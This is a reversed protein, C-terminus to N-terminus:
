FQQFGTRHFLWLPFFGQRQLPTPIQVLSNKPDLLLNVLALVWATGSSVMVWFQLKETQIELKRLVWELLPNVFLFVAILFPILKV